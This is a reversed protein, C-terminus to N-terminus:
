FSFLCPNSAKMTAEIILAEEENDLNDQAIVQRLSVVEMM